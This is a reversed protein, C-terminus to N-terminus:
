FFLPILDGRSQM